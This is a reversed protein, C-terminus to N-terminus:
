KSSEKKLREEEKKRRAAEEAAQAAKISSSLNDIKSNIAPITTNILLDYSNKLSECSSKNKYRDAPEEDVKYMSEVHQSASYYLKYSELLKNALNIVEDRFTYYRLRESILQSSTSM